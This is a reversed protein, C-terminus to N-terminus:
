TLKVLYGTRRARDFALKYLPLSIILYILAIEIGIILLPNSTTGNIVLSRANEFIATYPMVASIARLPEPFVDVSFFPASLLIFLQLITWALFGYEKGMTIVIAAVLVSMAISALLTMAFLLIVLGLHTTIISLGFGFSVAVLLVLVVISVITSFIIRAVLYEFENIGSLFIQKLSGSWTDEMMQMNTNSQAIYAFNWFINLALVMLGAELAFQKMYLAFFGWIIISTIPFYFTEVLRWKVRSFVLADHYLLAFIKHLRM